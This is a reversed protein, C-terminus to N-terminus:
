GPGGGEQDEAAEHQAAGEEGEGDAEGVGIFLGRLVFPFRPHPFALLGRQCGSNSLLSPPLPKPSSPLKLPLSPSLSRPLNKIQNLVRHGWHRPRLGGIVAGFPRIVRLLHRLYLRCRVQFVQSRVSGVSWLICGNLSS